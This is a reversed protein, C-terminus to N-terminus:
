QFIARDDIDSCRDLLLKEAESLPEGPIGPSRCTERPQVILMFERDIAPIHDEPNHVRSPQRALMLTSCEHQRDWEECRFEVGGRYWVQDDRCEVVRVVPEVRHACLRETPQQLLMGVHDHCPM